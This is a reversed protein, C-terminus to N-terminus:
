AIVNGLNNTVTYFRVMHWIVLISPILRKSHRPCSSSGYGDTIKIDKKNSADEHQSLHHPSMWSRDDMHCVWTCRGTQLVMSLSDRAWDICDMLLVSPSADYLSLPYRCCSWHIDESELFFGFSGVGSIWMTSSKFNSVLSTRAGTILYQGCTRGATADKYYSGGRREVFDNLSWSAPADPPPSYATSM